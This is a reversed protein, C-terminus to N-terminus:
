SCYCDIYRKVMTNIDFLAARKFCLQSIEKYKGADTLLSNIKNALDKENGKDFLIGAGDVVDTLGPVNSVIVPKGAAMGEAAVLGFGEWHSSLVIIDSTKFIRDVDDRFGLFHVRNDVGIEKALKENKQKLPGEGILLLHVNQPLEKMAKILTPQDKQQSFSGTMCVLKISEDFGYFFESKKYPKANKFKEIDIGNEIVIFKDVENQKPMLWSILNNQTQQSISIIKDYSSYIFKELYRLCKKGRRRNYTSHETLVFKPKNKLILRSAISTWYITPFLHAHVVDYRGELIHRRIHFINKPSRPKRLSIIDVKINNDELNKYFVNKRDTLLLVDVKFGEKKNIRPVLEEILKEAGGSGLNNIIHLVKM